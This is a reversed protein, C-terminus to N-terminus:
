GTGAAQRDSRPTRRYPKWPSDWAYADRRAASTSPRSGPVSRSTLQWRPAPADSHATEPPRDTSVVMPKVGSSPRIIAVRDPM